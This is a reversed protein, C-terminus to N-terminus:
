EVKARGSKKSTDTDAGAGKPVYNDVFFKCFLVFYGVVVSQCYWWERGVKSFDFCDDATQLYGFTHVSIVCVFQVLQSATIFPRAWRVPHSYHLYMVFHVVANLFAYGGVPFNHTFAAMTFTTMHHFAHLPIVKKGYLVLWYTDMWEWIKSWLYVWNALGYAGTNPTNRCTMSHWSSFRGDQYVSFLMVVAMILSVLSLLINHWWKVLDMRWAARMAKMEEASKAAVYKQLAYVSVCYFACIAVHLELSGAGSLTWIWASTSSDYDLGYGSFTTM